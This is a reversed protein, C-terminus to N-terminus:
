KGQCVGWKSDNLVQFYDKFLYVSNLLFYEQKGGRRPVFQFSNAYVMVAWLNHCQKLGPNYVHLYYHHQSMSDM